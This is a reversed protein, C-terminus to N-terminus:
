GRASRHALVLVAAASIGLTWFAPIAESPFTKIALMHLVGAGSAWLARSGYDIRDLRDFDAIWAPTAVIHQLRLIFVAGIAALLTAMPMNAQLWFAHGMILLVAIFSLDHTAKAIRILHM